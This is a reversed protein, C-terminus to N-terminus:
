ELGPFGNPADLAAIFPNCRRAAGITTAAGHGPLVNFADDLEMLRRLSLRMAQPDAGPLDTRGISDEFLTDGSVLVQEDDFAYCVCGPAHGPTPIVRARLTGAAIMRGDHLDTDLRPPPTRVPTYPSIVNLPGFAWGADAESLYVPVDFRAVLGPLASLHDLHGHTLLIASPTLKKAALAAIIAEAEDGPDVIFVHAPEKWLLWCNECFAGTQLCDIFMSNMICAGQTFLM